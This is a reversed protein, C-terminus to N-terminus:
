TSAPSGAAPERRTYYGKAFYDRVQAAAGAVKAAAFSTGWKRQNRVGVIGEGADQEDDLSQIVAHSVFYDDWFTGERGAGGVAAEIGPAALLPAIRRSAFTAPGKSTFNAMFGSPDTPAIPHLTDTVNAGVSVVNKGTALDQVL